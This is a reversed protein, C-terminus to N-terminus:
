DRSTFVTLIGTYGYLHNRAIEGGAFFGVLPVDGLANRVTQLEAHRAGFHPGGRGSCSVYLAGSMHGATGCELEARIETAIRVLDVLAAEPSRTCFALHMGPEALDAVELARHKPDVGVLHRVLTDTGFTGPRKPVDEAGISLGALTTSLAQSLTDTPLDRDLGLDDLVCDLAPKGDLTIVLNHKAQTITRVPGIPQCGQTVRSILGVEPGFLVGSLGGTFVGDAIHLPRNRASSLGGFLYGTATRASLEHLLEQLDPTGGEAHVLATHPVFGSSTAPLPQRGSFIRFSDRPLPAVMLVLAPEDIYEVGNAVVGVGVTGIWAVGPLARQLEHVIAESAPAYYDSLYCWGLTFQASKDQQAARAAIQAQVQRQCEALAVRWDAHAAHAHVFLAHSM